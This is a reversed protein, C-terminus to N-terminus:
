YEREIIEFLSRRLNDDIKFTIKIIEVIINGNCVVVNYCNNNLLIDAFDVQERKMHYPLKTSYKFHNDDFWFHVIFDIDYTKVPIGDNNHDYYDSENFGLITDIFKFGKNRNIYDTFDDDNVFYFIEKRKYGVEFIECRTDGKALFALVEFVAKPLDNKNVM